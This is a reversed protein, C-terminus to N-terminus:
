KKRPELDGSAPEPSDPPRQRAVPAWSDQSSPLSSRLSQPGVKRATTKSSQPQRERPRLCVADQRGGGGGGSPITLNPLVLLGGLIDLSIHTASFCCICKKLKLIDM